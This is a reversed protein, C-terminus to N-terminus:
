VIMAPRREVRRGYGAVLLAPVVCIAAAMAAELWVDGPAPPGAHGKEPLPRV